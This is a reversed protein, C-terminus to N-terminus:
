LLSENNESKKCKRYIKPALYRNFSHTDFFPGYRGTTEGPAISFHIIQNLSLAPVQGLGSNLYALLM